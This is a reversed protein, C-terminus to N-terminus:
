SKLIKLYCFGVASPLSLRGGRPDMIFLEMSLMLRGRVISRSRGYTTPDPFPQPDPRFAPLHTPVLTKLVIETMGRGIESFKAGIGDELYRYKKLEEGEGERTM